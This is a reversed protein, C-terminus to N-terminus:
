APTFSGGGWGKDEDDDNDEDEQEDNGDGDASDAAPLRPSPNSLRSATAGIRVRDRGSESGDM